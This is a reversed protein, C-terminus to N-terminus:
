AGSYEAYIQRLLSATHTIHRTGLLPEDGTRAAIVFDRVSLGLPDAIKLIKDKYTLHLTYTGLDIHRRAILGNFGFSFTRPQEIERVMDIMVACKKQEALYNFRIKLTDDGGAFTLDEM